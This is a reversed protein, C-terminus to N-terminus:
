HNACINIRFISVVPSNLYASFKWNLTTTDNKYRRQLISVIYLMSEKNETREDKHSKYTKNNMVTATFVRRHQM